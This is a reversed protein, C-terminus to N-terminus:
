ADVQIDNLTRAIDSLSLAQANATLNLAAQPMAPAQAEEPLQVITRGGERAIAQLGFAGDSNAGTLVIGLLNEGYVDSASEFLVDISPRSYFVPEDSCLSIRHDQEVLMHYDPPAFYVNGPLIDMKDDAECVNVACKSQMLSALLSDKEPPVHVVVLIPLPFNAPLTPLIASLAELAGASAGIVIAEIPHSM